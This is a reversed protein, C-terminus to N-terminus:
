PSLKTGSPEPFEPLAPISKRRSRVLRVALASPPELRARRREETDAAIRSRLFSIVDERLFVWSKGLKTGPLEGRRAYLLVTENEARLLMAVDAVGLTEDADM